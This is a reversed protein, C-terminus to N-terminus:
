FCSAFSLVFQIIYCYVFVLLPRNFKLFTSINQCMFSFSLFVFRLQTYVSYHLLTIIYYDVIDLRPRNLKLRTSINQSLFFTEFYQAFRLTCQIIYCYVIVLLPRNLKLYTSIYKCVFSFNLLMFFLQTYVSYYLLLCHGVTIQQTKSM